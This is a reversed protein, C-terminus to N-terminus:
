ARGRRGGGGRVVRAPVGVATAGAPVDHGALVVAGAGTVARRGVKVPAVLLTGSGLFAGDGVTTAHKRRGDFNCTITGAGVNVGAGVDADGLYALHRAKSGRGLRSAKVEVFNGVSAGDELIAGPRLRAYPGVSCGRGIRVGSEVITFPEIRTGAGIRADPAVSTTAPDVIEVGAALFSELVRRRMVAGAAALESLTNVGSVVEPDLVRVASVARGDRRLIRPVDTLYLEGQANRASLRRLVPGLGDADFAYIGSNVEAITRTEFDADKEEVIDVFAGRGDRVVRGYGTPDAPRFTLVTAAGRSRAHADVLMRLTGTAVLPVDGSLVAVTGRFGRLAPLACRLAHGTGRQEGQVAFVVRSADFSPDRRVAARVEAAGHGVVVVVKRPRLGLAAELVHNVMPRGAVEFLVKPRESRMRTGKGAALIVAAVAKSV